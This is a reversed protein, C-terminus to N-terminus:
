ERALLSLDGIQLPLAVTEGREVGLEPDFGRPGLGGELRREALDLAHAHARLLGLALDRGAALLRGLGLTSDLLRPGLSRPLLLLELGLDRQLGPVLGRELARALPEARHLSGRVVELGPGAIETALVVLDRLPEVARLQLPGFGLRLQAHEQLPHPVFVLHVE